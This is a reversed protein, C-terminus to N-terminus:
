LRTQMPPRLYLIVSEVSTVSQTLWSKIPDGRIARTLIGMTNGLLSVRKAEGPKWLPLWPKRCFYNLLTVLIVSTWDSPTLRHLWGSDSDSPAALWAATPPPLPRWTDPWTHWLTLTRTRFTHTRTHVRRETDWTIIVMKILHSSSVSLLRM